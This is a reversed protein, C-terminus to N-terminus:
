FSGSALEPLEVGEPLPLLTEPTPLAALFEQASDTELEGVALQEDLQWELQNLNMKSWGAEEKIAQLADEVEGAVSAEIPDRGFRARHSDLDVTGPLGIHIAVGLASAEEYLADYAEALKNQRALLPRLKKEIREVNAKHEEQFQKRLAFRLEHERRGLQDRLMRFRRAVIRRLEKRETKSMQKVAVKEAAEVSLETM